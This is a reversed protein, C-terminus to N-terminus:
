QSARLLRSVFMRPLRTRSGRITKPWFMKCKSIIHLKAGYLSPDYHPNYRFRNYSVVVCLIGHGLVGQNIPNLLRLRSLSPIKGVNLFCEIRDITNAILPIHEIDLSVVIPHNNNDFERRLINEDTEDTCM